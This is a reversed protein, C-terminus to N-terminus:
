PGLRAGEHVARMHTVVFLRAEVGTSDVRRPGGEKALEFVGADVFLYDGLFHVKDPVKDALV